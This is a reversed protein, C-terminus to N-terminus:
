ERFFIPHVAEYMNRTDTENHKLEEHNWLTNTRESCEKALANGINEYSLRLERKLVEPNNKAGVVFTRSRLSSPTERLFQERRLPYQDDYDILMVVYCMENSELEKIYVDKFKSLVHIWGGVAPLVQIQCSNVSSHLLFGNALQRDRDDEPIIYVYPKYKNLAM